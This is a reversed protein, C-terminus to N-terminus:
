SGAGMGRLDGEMELVRHGRIPFLRFDAGALPLGLTESKSAVTSTQVAQITGIANMYAAGVSFGLHGM